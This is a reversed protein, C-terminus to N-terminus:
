GLSFASTASRTPRLPAIEFSNRLNGDLVRLEIEHQYWRKFRQNSLTGHFDTNYINDYGNKRVLGRYASMADKYSKSGQQWRNLTTIIDKLNIVKDQYGNADGGEFSRDCESGM